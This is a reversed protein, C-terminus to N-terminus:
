SKLAEIPKLKAARKAPYVSALLSVILVIVDWIIIYEMFVRPYIVSGTYYSELANSFYSLNIGVKGFYNALNIGLVTGMIIGILGLFFSEWAVMKTILKPKMGVALMIGFEKVRELVAMLMTNLIGAAVVILVVFLIVNSFAKDFEMWQKTIPSIEQWNLIEYKKLNFKSKLLKTVSDIAFVSDTKLVYESVSKDLVLLDQASKLDILVLSRDIEEAGTKLIGCVRYAGSAMSGDAGQSMLVVKDKLKVNLIQALDSGIVIENKEGTLFYGKKVKKYLKSVLKEKESDVGLILVGSSGETSSVLAYNKVRQSYFPIINKNSNLVEEIEQPNNISLDLSLKKQFDKVHIQVHGSMLDTYNEIMQSDAGDIFSRIFILSCVGMAIGFITILSRYQNRWVNRWAIKLITLM